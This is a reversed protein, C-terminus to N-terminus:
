QCRQGRQMGPQCGGAEAQQRDCIRLCNPEGLDSVICSGDRWTIDAVEWFETSPEGHAGSVRMVLPDYERALEGGCFIKVTVTAPGFDDDDWFHVGLRYTGARPTLININEPGNGDVDDLDLRPDDADLPATWEVQPPPTRNPDANYAAIEARCDPESSATCVRCNRFFCDDGQPGQDFWTADPARKLHMDVDSNDGAANVNWVMEIRLRDASETTLTTTCRGIGGNADEVELELEYDGQLDAFIGTVLLNPPTPTATSGGPKLQMRWEARVMEDGDDDEYMGVFTYLALPPGQQGPPCIARPPTNECGPINDVEGDCDNDIGDCVEVSPLVEGECPGYFELRCSQIGERCQGNAVTLDAPNGSYCPKEPLTCNCGEDVDGECTDDRNNTCDEFQAPVCWDPDGPQPMEGDTGNNVGGDGTPLPGGGGGAGGADVVPPLQNLTFVDGEDEGESPACAVALASAAIAVLSTRFM